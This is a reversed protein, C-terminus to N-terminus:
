VKQTGQSYGLSKITEISTIKKHPWVAVIVPIVWTMVEALNVWPDNFYPTTSGLELTMPFNVAMTIVGWVAPVAIIIAERKWSLIRYAFFYAALVVIITVVLPLYSTLILQFVGWFGTSYNEGTYYPSSFIAVSSIVWVAEHSGYIFAGVVAGRLIDKYGYAIVAVMLITWSMWHGSFYYATLPDQGSTIMGPVYSMLYLFPVFAVLMSVMRYFSIRWFLRRDLFKIIPDLIDVPKKLFLLAIFLYPTFAMASYLADFWTDFSLGTVPVILSLFGWLALICVGQLAIKFATKRRSPLKPLSPLESEVTPPSEFAM